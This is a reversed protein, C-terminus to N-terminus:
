VWHKMHQSLAWNKGGERERERDREEIDTEHENERLCLM